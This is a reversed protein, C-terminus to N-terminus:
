FLYIFLASWSSGSGGTQIDGCRRGHSNQGPSFRGDAVCVIQFLTGVSLLERAATRMLSRLADCYVRNDPDHPRERVSPLHTEPEFDTIGYRTLLFDQASRVNAYRPDNRRALATQLNPSSAHVTISVLLSDVSCEILISLNLRVSKPVYLNMGNPDAQPLTDM